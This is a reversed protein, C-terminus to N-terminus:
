AMLVFSLFAGVVGGGSTTGEGGLDGGGVVLDVPHDIAEIPQRLLSYFYNFGLLRKAMCKIFLISIV